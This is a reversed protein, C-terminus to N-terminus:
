EEIPSWRVYRRAIAACAAGTLIFAFAAPEALSSGTASAVAAPAAGGTLAWFAHHRTGINWRGITALATVGVLIPLASLIMGVISVFPLIVVASGLLQLVTAPSGEVPFASAPGCQQIALLISGCFLGGACLAPAFVARGSWDSRCGPHTRLM